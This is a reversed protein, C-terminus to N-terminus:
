PQPCDVPHMPALKMDRDIARAATQEASDLHLLTFSRTANGHAELQAHVGLKRLATLRQTAMDLKGYVGLSLANQWPGNRIVSVDRIGLAELDALRADAAQKDRLPPYYIWYPGTANDSDRSILREGLLLQNLRTQAEATRDAPIPGWQLCIAASAATAPSTTTQSGSAATSSAAPAPSSQTAPVAAPAAPAPHPAPTTPVAPAPPPATAATAAAPQVATPAPSTSASPKGAAASVATAPQSAASPQGTATAAAGSRPATPPSHIVQVREPHFEAPEPEQRTAPQGWEFWAFLALNLLVLLIALFKM